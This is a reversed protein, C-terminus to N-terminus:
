YNLESAREKVSCSIQINESKLGFVIKDYDLILMTM